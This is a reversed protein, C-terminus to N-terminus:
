SAMDPKNNEHSMINLLKMQAAEHDIRDLSPNRIQHRNNV